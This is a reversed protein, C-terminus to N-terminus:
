QFSFQKKGLNLFRKHKSILGHSPLKKGKCISLVVFILCVGHVHFVLVYVHGHGHGHGDM